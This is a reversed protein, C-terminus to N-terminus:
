CPSRRRPARTGYAGATSRPMPSRLSIQPFHDRSLLRVDILSMCPRHPEHVPDVDDRERQQQHAAQLNEIRMRRQVPSALGIVAPRRDELQRRPFFAVRHDAHGADEPALEFGSAHEARRADVALEGFSAEWGPRGDGAVLPEGHSAAPMEEKGPYKDDVAERVDAIRERGSVQLAVEYRCARSQREM